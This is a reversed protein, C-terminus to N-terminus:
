PETLLLLLLLLPPPTTSVNVLATVRGDTRLEAVTEINAARESTGTM